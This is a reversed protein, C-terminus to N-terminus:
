NVWFAVLFGNALFPEVFQVFWSIVLHHFFSSPDVFWWVWLLWQFSLNRIRFNWLVSSFHFQFYLFNSFDEKFHLLGGFFASLTIFWHSPLFFCLHYSILRSVDQVQSFHPSLVTNSCFEWTLFLHRLYLNIFQGIYCFFLQVFNLPKDKVRM